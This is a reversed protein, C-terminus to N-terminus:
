DTEVESANFNSWNKKYKERIRKQNLKIKGNSLVEDDLVEVVCEKKVYDVSVM